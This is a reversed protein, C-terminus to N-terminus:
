FEFCLAGNRNYETRVGKLASLARNTAFVTGTAPNGDDYAIDIKRGVIDDIADFCLVPMDLENANNEFGVVGGFANTPRPVVSNSSGPPLQADSAQPYQAILGAELLHLWILVTENGDAGRWNGTVQGDGNGVQNDGVGDFRNANIDDGPYARYIDQYSYYAAKFENQFKILSKIKANEIMEYGKLAGGLLLGIIVMVIAIEVLTFGRQANRQLM